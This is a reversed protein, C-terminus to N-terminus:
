DAKWLPHKVMATEFLPSALLGALWNHLAPLPLGDFWGRDTNAFQRLFPFLAIDVLGRRDGALFTQASLRKDLMALHAMTADRPITPDVVGHRSSYKYQDLSTKFPGDNATILAQDTGKLWNEPDNQALAWRMVDLSEDLVEGEPLLIVPVTGKPSAEIMQAPKDRLLVERHEHEVKSVILAMRARMAYPCRRFSYLIPHKQM